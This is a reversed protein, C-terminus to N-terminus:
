AWSKGGSCSPFPSPRTSDKANPSPRARFTKMLFSMPFTNPSLAPGCGARYDWARFSLSSGASEKLNRSKLRRKMGFSSVACRRPRGTWAGSRAWTGDWVSAWLGFIRLTAEEITAAEALIRAVTHQVRLREEVRKRETIDTASGIYGLFTGDSAFRPPGKDLLWRYEGGDRRGRY